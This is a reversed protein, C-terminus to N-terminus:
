VRLREPAPAIKALLEARRDVTVGNSLSPREDSSRLCPSKAMPSAAGCYNPLGAQEKHCECISRRAWASVM